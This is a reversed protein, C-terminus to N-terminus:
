EQILDDINIIVWRDNSLKEINPEENSFVIIHPNNFICMESEYKNNFFIGNKIEEIGTYSIYDTDISRPIDIIIIKPAHKNKNIFNVIGYKMDNGKGTVLIANHNMCIWKCLTSKGKNGTNEWFWYIKRKDAPKTIIDIVKIHWGYPEDCEVIEPLIFNTHFDKEKSCYKINQERSGKTKEWHISQNSFLNKPRCKENFEIYGQIHKMGTSPATEFGYIYKNSSGIKVIDDIDNQTYNCITFCWKKSPSIQKTNGSKKSSNSSNPM